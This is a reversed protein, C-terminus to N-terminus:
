VKSLIRGISGFGLPGALNALYYITCVCVCVCVFWMIFLIPATSGFEGAVISQCVCFPLEITFIDGQFFNFDKKLSLNQQKNKM